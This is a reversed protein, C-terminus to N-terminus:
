GNEEWQEHISRQKKIMYLIETAKDEINRFDSQWHKSFCLEVRLEEVDLTRLYDIRERMDRM